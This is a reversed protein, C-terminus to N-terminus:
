RMTPSLQSTSSALGASGSAGACMGGCGLAWRRAGLREHRWHLAGTPQPSVQERRATFSLGTKYQMGEREVVATLEPGGRVAGREGRGAVGDQWRMAEVSLGRRMAEPSLFAELGSGGISTAIPADAGPEAEDAGPM